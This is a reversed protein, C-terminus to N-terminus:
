NQDNLDERPITRLVDSDVSVFFKNIVAYEKNSEDIDIFKFPLYSTSLNGSLLAKTVDKKCDEFNNWHDNGNCELLDNDCDVLRLKMDLGKM